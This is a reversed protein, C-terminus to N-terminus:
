KKTNPIYKNLFLENIKNKWLRYGKNSLHLGDPEYLSADIAGKVFMAENIELYTCNPHNKAIDEKIIKNTFKISDFIHLRSISNKISVYAVPINGCHKDILRMMNQFNLFVEEPHRRDGLDNDGAYIIIIDPNCRPIVREFFWCCAALTSGGFAQNIVDFNPFDKNINKWLTFSSSGYFVVRIKDSKTEIKKNELQRVEEEYWFM